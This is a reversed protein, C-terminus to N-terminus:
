RFPLLLLTLSVAVCCCLLLPMSVAFVATYYGCCCCCCCHFQPAAAFCCCRCHFMLLLAFVISGVLQSVCDISGVLKVISSGVLMSHGVQNKLPASSRNKKTKASPLSSILLMLQRRDEYNWNQRISLLLLLELNIVAAAFYCCCCCCHHRHRCAIKNTPSIAAAGISRKTM